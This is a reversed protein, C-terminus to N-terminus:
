GCDYILCGLDDTTADKECTEFAGALPLGLFLANFIAVGDSVDVDNSDNADAADLCGPEDGGLFLYNLIRIADSLDVTADGTADGRRFDAAPVPCEEGERTSLEDGAACPPGLFATEEELAFFSARTCLYTHLGEEPFTSRSAYVLYEGGTEYYVGCTGGDAPTFVEVVRQVTGKWVATAHFTVRHLAGLSAGEVVDVVEVVGQFAADFESLVEDPTADPSPPICSCALARGGALFCVGVAVLGIVVLVALRPIAGQRRLGILSASVSFPM